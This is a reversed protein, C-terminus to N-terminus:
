RGLTKRVKGTETRRKKRRWERRRKSRSTIRKLRLLGTEMTTRNIRRRDPVFNKGRWGVKLKDESMYLDTYNILLQDEGKLKAKTHNVKADYKDQRLFRRRTKMNEPTSEKRKEKEGKRSMRKNEWEEWAGIQNQGPKPPKWDGSIPSAEWRRKGRKGIPTSEIVQIIEVIDKEISENM